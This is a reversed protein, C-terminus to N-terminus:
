LYPLESARIARVAQDLPIKDIAAAALYGAAFGTQLCTGMVRASAIAESDASIIRGGVFLNELAEAILCGAPIEYYGYEPLYSMSVSGDEKWIEMPWTGVAIGEASNKCNRVHDGTLVNRGMTRAAVRFGTKEAVHDLSAESFSYIRSKFIDAIRFALERSRLQFEMDNESANTVSFPLAIKFSASGEKLSGPVLYIKLEKDLGTETGAQKMAKIINLSLRDEREEKIGKMRFIQAASQYTAESIVRQGSLRAVISNGSCDVVSRPIVVSENNGTLRCSSISGEEVNAEKLASGQLLLMNDNSLYKKALVEFADIHYPLFHIGEKTSVPVTGSLTALDKCFAKAFGAVAYETDTFTNHFLGCVTGVEAATANGGLRLSPDVLVVAKGMRSASVAAAIGAAGAGVVLVDTSIKKM